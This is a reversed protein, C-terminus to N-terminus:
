NLKPKKEILFVSPVNKVAIEKEKWEKLSLTIVQEDPFTLNQALCFYTSPNKLTSLIKKVMNETQYPREIWIQTSEESLKEIKILNKELEDKDKALYGHFQFNQGSFGSLMLAFVLSSPGSVVEIPINRKKLEFVLFSGPDALCPLGADSLIGWKQTKVKEALEEMPFHDKKVHENLLVLSIKQMKERPMFRLLYRRAEKESEVFVGVLENVIEKLQGPLFFEWNKEEPNLLNPLLVLM